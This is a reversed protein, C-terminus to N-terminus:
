RYITSRNKISNKDMKKTINEMEKDLFISFSKIDAADPLEEVKTYRQQAMTNILAPSSIHDAWMADMPKVFDNAQSEREKIAMKLKALKHM